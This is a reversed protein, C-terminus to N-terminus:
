EDEGPWEGCEEPLPIGEREKARLHAVRRPGQSEFFDIIDQKAEDDAEMYKLAMEAADQPGLSPLDRAMAEPFQEAYAEGLDKESVISFLSLFFARLWEPDPKSM